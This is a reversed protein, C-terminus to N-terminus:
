KYLKVLPRYVRSLFHIDRNLGKFCKKLFVMERLCFQSDSLNPLSPDTARRAASLYELAREPYCAGSFMSSSAMPSPSWLLTTKDPVLCGLAEKAWLQAKLLCEPVAAM